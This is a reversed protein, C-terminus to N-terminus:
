MVESQGLTQRSALSSALRVKVVLGGFGALGVVVLAPLPLSVSADDTPPSAASVLHCYLFHARPVQSALQVSTVEVDLVSLWVTVPSLSWLGTANLTRATFAEPM